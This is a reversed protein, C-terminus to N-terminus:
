DSPLAILPNGPSYVITISNGRSLTPLSECTLTNTQVHGAQDTFQVTYTLGPSHNKGCTTPAVDVITAQTQIGSAPLRIAQVAVVISIIFFLTAILFCCFLLCSVFLSVSRRLFGVSSRKQTISM